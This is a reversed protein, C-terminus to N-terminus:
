DDEQNLFRKDNNILKAVDSCHCYVREYSNNIDVYVLSIYQKARDKFLTTRAYHKESFNKLERVYKRRLQSVKIALEKDNNEYVKKTMQLLELAYNNQTVLEQLLEGEIVNKREFAGAFFDILNEGYDGIREIDKTARIIQGYSRLDKQDLDGQNANLLYENLQRDIRDISKELDHIYEDTESNPKDLYEELSKFMTISFDLMEVTAEKALEIGTSPFEKMTSANLEKIVIEKHGVTKGPVAKEALKCLPNIFPFVIITTSLNFVLHALAIQVKPDIGTWTPSTLLWAKCIYTILMFLLAGLVNFIVHVFATRKAAVSGGVSAMVATICTGINAGFLIPLVGFLTFGTTASVAYIGQLVGIVASSSQLGVTAVIGVLLGLWPSDNLGTLMEIFWAESAISSLNEEMIVLGFFIAGFAFLFEGLYKWRQHSALMLILTGVFMLFPVYQAFPIAILFATVTTGVNAGIIVAVAQPLLMVGARVLGIVLATTGSSSQIIATFGVGVAVGKIPKNTFKTVIKRLKVGAGKKLVDSLMSIGYLFLGLGALTTAWFPFTQYDAAFLQLM